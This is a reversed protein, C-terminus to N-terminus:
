KDPVYLFLSRSNESILTPSVFPLNRFLEEPPLYEIRRSFGINIKNSKVARSFGRGKL